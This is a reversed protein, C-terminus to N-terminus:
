DHSPPVERLHKAAIERGFWGEGEAVRPYLRYLQGVLDPPLHEMDPLCQEGWTERDIAVFKHDGDGRLFMGCLLGELVDGPRPSRETFLLVDYHPEPPLGTGTIWGYVGGFDRVFALSRVDTLRFQNGILEPVTLPQDFEESLTSFLTRKDTPTGKSM